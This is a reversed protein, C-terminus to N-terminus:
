ESSTLDSHDFSFDPAKSQNTQTDAVENINDDMLMVNQRPIAEGLKMGKYITIPTPSANM